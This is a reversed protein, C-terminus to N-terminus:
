FVAVGRIRGNGKRQQGPREIEMEGSYQNGPKDFCEKGVRFALTGSKYNKSRSRGQHSEKQVRKGKANASDRKKLIEQNKMPPFLITRQLNKGVSKTKKQVRNKKHCSSEGM